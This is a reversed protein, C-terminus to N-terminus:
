SQPALPVDVTVRAGKGRGESSLEVSGGHRQVIWRVISLGLGHGEYDDRTTAFPKFLREMMEPEIGTGNDTIAIRAAFETRSADVVLRGGLPMAEVANGLLNTFVQILHRRSGKVPLPEETMVRAVEIERDEFRASLAELAAKVPEKLDLPEVELPTPKVFELYGALIEVARESEEAIVRLREDVAATKGESLLTRAHESSLLITSLPTKAEHLVGALAQGVTSLRQMWAVKQEFGEALREDARRADQAMLASLFSTALLLSVRLLYFPEALWEGGPFTLTAYAICALLGVVFSQRLDRLFCSGLVVLFYVVSLESAGDTAWVIVSVAALDLGFSLVRGREAIKGMKDAYYAVAGGVAHAFLAIWILTRPRDEPAYLAVLLLAEFVVLRLFALHKATM